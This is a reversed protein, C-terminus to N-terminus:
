GQSVLIFGGHGSRRFGSLWAAGTACNSKRGTFRPLLRNQGKYKGLAYPPEAGRVFHLSQSPRVALADTGFAALERQVWKQVTLPLGHNFPKETPFFTQLYKQALKSCYSVTGTVTLMVINGGVIPELTEMVQPVPIAAHMM